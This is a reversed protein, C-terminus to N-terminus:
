LYTNTDSGVFEILQTPNSRGIDMIATAQSPRERYSALEAADYEATM